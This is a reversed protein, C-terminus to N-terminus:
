SLWRGSFDTKLALAQSKGRDFRRAPTESALSALERDTAELGMGDVDAGRNILRRPMDAVLGSGSGAARTLGGSATPVRVELVRSDVM